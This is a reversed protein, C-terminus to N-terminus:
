FNTQQFVAIVDGFIRQDHRMLQHWMGGTGIIMLHHFSTIQISQGDAPHSKIRGIAITRKAGLGIHRLEGGGNWGKGM